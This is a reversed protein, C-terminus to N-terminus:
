SSPTAAPSRSRSVDVAAGDRPFQVAHHRRLRRAAPPDDRLRRRARHERAHRGHAAHPHRLRIRHERPRPFHQRAGRRADQRARALRDPLAQRLEARRAPPLPFVRARARGAAHRAVRSVGGARGRRRRQGRGRRGGPVRRHRRRHLSQLRAHHRNEAPAMRRQHLAPLPHPFHCSM